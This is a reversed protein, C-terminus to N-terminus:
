WSRPPSSHPPQTDTLAKLTVTGPLQHHDHLMIGTLIQQPARMDDAARKPARVMGQVDLQHPAPHYFSDCRDCRRCWRFLARQPHEVEHM